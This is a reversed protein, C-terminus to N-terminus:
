LKVELPPTPTTSELLSEFFKRVLASVSLYSRVACLSAHRSIEDPISVNNNRM